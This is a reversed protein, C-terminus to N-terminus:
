LELLDWRNRYKDDPDGFMRMNNDNHAKGLKGPTDLWAQHGEKITKAVITSPVIHFDPFDNEGKLNVLVYFLNDSALDEAKKTLAM